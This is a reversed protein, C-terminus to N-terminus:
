LKLNGTAGVENQPTPTKKYKLNMFGATAIMLSNDGCMHKEPLYLNIGYEKTKDQFANTITKNASVGGAIILGTANYEMVANMTKKILTETVAHEFELAIDSIYQEDMKGQDTLKQILYRASTKLGSFSFRYDGSHLMPRPLSIDDNHKGHQAAASIKPGGPYQMGLMRAVKDFAEGVADDITEGLIEYDCWGRVLIIQTHGGSILLAIMPFTFDSLSYLAQPKNIYDDQLLISTIHGEMHNVPLIPCDFIVSLARAFNVGVWLAPALGPGHTVMVMDINAVNNEAFFHILKEALEPERELIELVTKETDPSLDIKTDVDLKKSQFSSNLLPVLNNAHERKALAPFVGGYEAHIDIQSIVLDSQVMFNTMDANTTIISIATEDCSTEISLINM